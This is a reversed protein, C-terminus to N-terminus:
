FADEDLVTVKLTRYGYRGVDAGRNFVEVDSIRRGGPYFTKVTNRFSEKQAMQDTLGQPTKVVAHFVVAQCVRSQEIIM